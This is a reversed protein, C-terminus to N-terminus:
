DTTAIRVREIRRAKGTSEDVTVVAGQLEAPGAATEFKAPLGSLFRQIVIDRRVGLVSDVPGTMGLDTIYATGRPLIREDSTQVHTHTGVVAAVKGDLFWGMAVKESTAEAHFDVVMIDCERSLEAVLADAVRFPCDLPPMFVRGSLNIVGLRIGGPLKAVTWGRGPAGRPYNAPRIVREDNELSQYFEKKNWVHNGTTLVAVGSGFLESATERTLGFGGAANEGNAIVADPRYTRVLEPQLAQIARRGPRGVIDGIFLLNVMM